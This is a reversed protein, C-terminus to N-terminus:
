RVELERRDPVQKLWEQFEQLTPPRAPIPKAPPVKAIASQKMLGPPKPGSSHAVTAWIAICLAMTASMLKCM